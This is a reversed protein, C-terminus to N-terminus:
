LPDPHGANRAAMEVEARRRAATEFANDWYARRGRLVALGSSAFYLVLYFPGFRGWQRIHECEHALIDPPVPERAVIYRGLTQATVPMLHARFWREVRPDEVLRVTVDGVDVERTPHAIGCGRMVLLGLLDGPLARWLNRARFPRGLWNRAARVLALWADLIAGAWHFVM